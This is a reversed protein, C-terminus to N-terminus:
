VDDSFILVKFILQMIMGFKLTVKLLLLRYM